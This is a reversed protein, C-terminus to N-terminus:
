ATLQEAEALLEDLHQKYWRVTGMHGSNPRTIIKIPVGAKQWAQLAALAKEYRIVKDRKGLVMVFAVNQKPPNDPAIDLEHWLSKVKSTSFGNNNFKKRAFYFLPREFVDGGPEGAGAYVGYQITSMRKQLHFCLGAGASAGICIIKKYGAAKEAFDKCIEDVLNILGQPNGSTLVSPSHEYGIVTFGQKNLSQAVNKYRSIKGLFGAIVCALKDSGEVPFLKSRFLSNNMKPLNNISKSM